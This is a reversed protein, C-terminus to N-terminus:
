DHGCVSGAPLRLKQLAGDRRSRAALDSRKQVQETFMEILGPGGPLHRRLAPHAQAGKQPAKVLRCATRGALPQGLFNARKPLASEIRQPVDAHDFLASVAVAAVTQQIDKNDALPSVTDVYRDTNTLQNHSWIAIASLPVLIFGVVLLVVSLIRQWRKARRPGDSANKTAPCGARHPLTGLPM